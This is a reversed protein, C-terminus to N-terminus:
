QTAVDSQLIVSARGDAVSRGTVRYRPTRCNPQRPIEQGCAIWNEGEGNREVIAVPTTAKDSVAAGTDRWGAFAENAWRAADAAAPEACYGDACGAGPFNGATAAGARTEAERLATEAGQFALNRDYSSASMRSELAVSRMGALAVLTVLVLLVLSVILSFGHQRRRRHPIRIM